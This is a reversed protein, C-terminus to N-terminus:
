IMNVPNVELDARVGPRPEAALDRMKAAVRDVDGKFYMKLFVQHRAEGRLLAIPADVARMHVVNKREGIEDIFLNLEKEAGEAASVADEMAKATFVIRAIV